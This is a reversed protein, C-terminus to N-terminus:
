VLVAEDSILEAPELLLLVWALVRVPLLVAGLLWTVDWWQIWLEHFEELMVHDTENSTKITDFPHFSLFGCWLLYRLESNYFKSVVLTLAILEADLKASQSLKTKFAATRDRLLVIM